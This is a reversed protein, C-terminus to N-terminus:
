ETCETGLGGACEEPPPTGREPCKLSYICSDSSVSSFDSSGILIQDLDQPAYNLIDENKIGNVYAESGAPISLDFSDFLTKLVVGEKHLHVVKGNGDHFHISENLPNERSQQYKPKSFDLPLGGLYVRLDFHAHYPEKSQTEEQPVSNLAEEILKKFEAYNGPMREIKVGNLYFTPTANLGVLNGDALDKAVRDKVRQSDIDQIFQPVNLGMGEAYGTIMERANSTGSWEEQSSYLKEHMQWFMGQLGAAEAAYSTILANKHQSLPFNRFVYNVKGAFETIAQKTLPAYASCAPCEYDGFEVLTLPADQSAEKYNGDVFGGTIYVGAPVLIDSSIKKSNVSDTGDKTFVFVGGVVLIITALVAGIFIKNQIFFEKM